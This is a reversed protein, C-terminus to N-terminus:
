QSRRRGTQQYSSGSSYFSDESSRSSKRSTRAKSAALPPDPTTLSPPSTVVPSSMPDPYTPPLSQHSLTALPSRRAPLPSDLPLQQQQQQTSPHTKNTSPSVSNRIYPRMLVTCVPPPFLSCLRLGFSLSTGSGPRKEKNRNPLDTARAIIDKKLRGPASFGGDWTAAMRGADRRSRRRM